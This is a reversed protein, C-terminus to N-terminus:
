NGQYFAGIRDADYLWRAYNNSLQSYLQGDTLVSVLKGNQTRCPDIILDANDLVRGKLTDLQELHPFQTAGMGFFQWFIPLNASSVLIRETELESARTQEGDTQFLVLAPAYKWDPEESQRQYHQIITEMAHTFETGGAPRSINKMFGVHQGITIEHIERVGHNFFIAPVKGDDDLVASLGLIREALDQVVGDQFLRQMSGSVDIALYVAAPGLGNFQTKAAQYHGILDPAEQSLKQLSIM